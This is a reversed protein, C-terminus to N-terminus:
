NQIFSLKVGNINDTKIEKQYDVFVPKIEEVKENLISKLFPSQAERNLEIPTIGPNEVRILKDNDGKEKYIIAYNDKFFDNTFKVIDAKTIKEYEQIDELEQEWSRERIYTNYLSSALGDATEWGKLRDKKMDNIIATLMWDPFEGKKVLNIQELLLNKAEDLSQNEKPVASLALYGYQKFPLVYAMSRLVKQKQNLNLDLLGADNNNTSLIQAVLEAMRAEKTGYSDTRWAMQLRPASPSKVVRKVIKDMPKEVIQSKKPLAKPKFNGFYKQALLITKDFDLDGVLVLAYNNPVYYENFYKHIAVM